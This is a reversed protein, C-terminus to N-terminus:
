APSNLIKLRPDIFKGNEMIATGDLYICGQKGVLMTTIDWHIKSRNGNDVHVPVGLYDTFTYANGLAVHFSGGIKEVMLSNVVHQQLVPNTGIGIEGVYCSGEDMNVEAALYEQGSAASFEVVKGDKFVLTIDEILENQDKPLFRGKAVIMGNVSFKNPASFVESGPVNKAILSNAFTFGDINMHLDTGDSNTFRLEKGMDLQAILVRHALDVAHWDVDCMRFFLDIYDPYPIHDLDADEPTPLVTITFFPNVERNRKFGSLTENYLRNKEKYNVPTEYDISTHTVRMGIRRDVEGTRGARWLAYHQIQKDTLADIMLRHFWPDDFTLEISLKDQYCRRIIQEGIDRGYDCLNVILPTRKEPDGQYLLDGLHTKQKASAPLSTFHSWDPLKKNIFADRLKTNDGLGLEAIPSLRQLWHIATIADTPTQPTTLTTLLPHTVEEWGTLAHLNDAHNQLTDGLLVPIILNSHPM